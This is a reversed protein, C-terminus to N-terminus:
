PQSTSGPSPPCTPNDFNTAGQPATTAIYGAYILTDADKEGEVLYVPLNDTRAKRLLDRRYLPTKDTKKIIRHVRQNRPRPLRSSRGM